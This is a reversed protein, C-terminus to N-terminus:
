PRDASAVPLLIENRRMFGPIWPPNYQALSPPGVPTLHRTAVLANLAEAQRTYDDAGAKGSFRLVAIRAAPVLQLTIWPDNPVPLSALTYAGPMIFRVRWDRDPLTQSEPATLTIRPRRPPSQLVPATMAISRRQLNGGFIYSALLRFGARAAQAQTGAVSVEAAVLPPYDRIEFRGDREVLDFAPEETAM